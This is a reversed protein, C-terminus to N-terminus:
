VHIWKWETEEKYTHTPYVIFFFFFLVLSAGYLWLIPKGLASLLTFKGPFTPWAIRGTESNVSACPAELPFQLYNLAQIIGVQLANVASVFYFPFFTSSLLVCLCFAPREVWLVVFCGFTCPSVVPALYSFASETFLFKARCLVPIALFLM